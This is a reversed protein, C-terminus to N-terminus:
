EAKEKAGLWKWTVVSLLLPIGVLVVVLLTGVVYSEGSLALLVVLAIYGLVGGWAWLLILKGYHWNRIAM